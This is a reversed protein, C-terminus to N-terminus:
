KQSPRYVWNWLRIMYKITPPYSQIVETIEMNKRFTPTIIVEKLIERSPAKRITYAGGDFNYAALFEVGKPLETSSFFDAAEKAAVASEDISWRHTVHYVSM